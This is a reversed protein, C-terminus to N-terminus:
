PEEPFFDLHLRIDALDPFSPAAAFVAGFSLQALKFTNDGSFILVVSQCWHILKNYTRIDHPDPRPEGSLRSEQSFPKKEQPPLARRISEERM